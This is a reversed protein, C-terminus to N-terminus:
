GIAKAEPWFREVNELQPLLSVLQGTLETRTYHDTMAEDVHGTMLRLAEGSILRRMKTIYTYRLAHPTLKRTEVEVGAASIVAAFRKCLQNKGLIRGRHLFVLGTKDDSYPMAEIWAKLARMARSPVLVVRLRPDDGSGKKLHPVLEQQSNVSQDIIIGSHAEDISAKRIARAEGSRMGTSLMLMFITGFLLGAGSPDRDEAIKWVQSLLVPDDPFLKLIEEDTLVGQKVSRRRFRPLKPAAPIIRYRVCERYIEGFVEMIRNRWSNSRKQTILWDEVEAASLEEPYRDGFTKVITKLYCLCEKRTYETIGKGHEERLLMHNKGTVYMDEAVDRIRVRQAEKVKAEIQKTEAEIEAIKAEAEWKRICPKKSEGCSKRVKKGQPDLYWYYWARVPKGNEKLSISRQYLHYQM